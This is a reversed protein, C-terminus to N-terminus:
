RQDTPSLLRNPTQSADPENILIRRWDNGPCRVSENDVAPAGSCGTACACIITVVLTFTAPTGQRRHM